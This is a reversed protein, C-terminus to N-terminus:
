SFRIATVPNLKSALRAPVLATLLCLFITVASVVLFYEPRLLIPVANMFYIDSPLSFFRFELQALCLTLAVVNGLLTGTVAITLGQRLFISSIGWRTAGLSRLVGIERVKDLVLMLLTGIINVTAVLIILFLIIPVPKKQLEIWSFLNRYNEFVTRGYHPYGLLGTASDAVAQAKDLSRLLIDYGSVEDPLQFLIQADQLNTFAYVDDYEAMGSEYIGVIRFQMIRPTTQAFGRSLGFITAKDGVDLALKAALKRGIVLHPVGGVERSLDYAGAVMYRPIISNDRAPDIGKLYVGDVDERSRILVERSVFPAISQIVPFREEMLAMSGEPDKLPQNQFGVIQVHSTFGIVKETIEKEFGGLVALAVILTATGLTVGLTAIATVFSVFGQNRRSRLYRQAIFATYTM